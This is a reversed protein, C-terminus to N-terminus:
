IICRNVDQYMHEDYFLIEASFSGSEL